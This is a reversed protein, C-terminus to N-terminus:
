HVISWQTCTVLQGNHTLTHEIVIAVIIIAAGKESERRQHPTPPAKTLDLTCTVINPSWCFKGDHISFKGPM